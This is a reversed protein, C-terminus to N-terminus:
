VSSILRAENHHSSDLITLQYEWLDFNEALDLYLQSMNFLRIDLSRVAERVQIPDINRAIDCSTLPDYIQKEIQTVELKDELDRLM